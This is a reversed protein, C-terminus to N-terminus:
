EAIEVPISNVLEQTYAKQPANIIQDAAGREVIKGDKM